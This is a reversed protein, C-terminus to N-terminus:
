SVEKSSVTTEVRFAPDFRSEGPKFKSQQVPHHSLGPLLKMMWRRTVGGRSETLRLPTLHRELCVACVSEAVRMGYFLLIITCPTSMEVSSPHITFILLLGDINPLLMFRRHNRMANTGAPLSWFSMMEYAFVLYTQQIPHGTDMSPYSM